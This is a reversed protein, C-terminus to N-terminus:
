RVGARSAGWLGPESPRWRPPSTPIGRSSRTSRACATSNHRQMRSDGRRQNIEHGGEISPPTHTLRVLMCDVKIVNYKERDSTQEVLKQYIDSRLFLLHRLATKRKGMDRQIRGLVEILRQIVDKIAAELRSTFDGAVVSETFSFDIEIKRIRDQLSFDNQARPLVMERIRLLVEVYMIYQWFAAITHDCIGVNVIGLLTERLESLNHSAPRLGLICTKRNRAFQEVLQFYVASKGSGKRGIIMAAEARIARAFEATRVFYQSLHQTENEAFSQGLNIKSLLGGTRVRDRAVIDQNLVLTDACFKEVHKETEHRYTSNTIFDRYDLPIPANEYQIAMVNVNYGHCLGLLFAARLNHYLNDAIETGIIPLIVGASSSIEIIAQAATLRPVETPDFKRYHVHSNEVTHFISNRFDTKKMTDLIFLPQAHDRPRSYNNKWSVNNWAGINEALEAGNVYTFYGITDFIGIRNFREISHEIATNVTILIPKGIGIAYGIEYFVNHNAYTVDAALVSADKIKERILNDLKFGIINLAEWPILKFRGRTFNEVAVKM